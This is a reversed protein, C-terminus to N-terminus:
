GGHGPQCLMGWTVARLKGDPRSQRETPTMDLHSRHRAPEAVCRRANRDAQVARSVSYDLGKFMAMDNTNQTRIRRHSM